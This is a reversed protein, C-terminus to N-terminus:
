QQLNEMRAIVLDIDTIVLGCGDLKKLWELVNVLENTQAISKDEALEWDAIINRM